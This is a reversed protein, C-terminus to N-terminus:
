LLTVVYIITIDTKKLSNKILASKVADATGLQKKQEVFEIKKFKQHINKKFPILDQSLVTVLNKPNLSLSTYFVHFIMPLNGVEHFVKPKESNMRTGKGAALVIISFIM